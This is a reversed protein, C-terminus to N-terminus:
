VRLHSARGTANIPVPPEPIGGTLYTKILLGRLHDHCMLLEEQDVLAFLCFCFGREAELNARWLVSPLLIMGVPPPIRSSERPCRLFCSASQERPTNASLSGHLHSECPGLLIFSEGPLLSVSMSDTEKGTVQFLVFCVFSCCCFFVKRM